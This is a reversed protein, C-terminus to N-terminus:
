IELTADTGGVNVERRVIDQTYCCWRWYQTGEEDYKSHLMPAMSM